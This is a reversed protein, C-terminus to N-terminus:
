PSLPEWLLLILPDRCARGPFRGLRTCAWRPRHCRVMATGELRPKGHSSRTRHERIGGTAPPYPHQTPSPPPAQQLPRGEAQTAGQLWCLQDPCSEHNGLGQPAPEVQEYETIKGSSPGEQSLVRESSLVVGGSASGARLSQM